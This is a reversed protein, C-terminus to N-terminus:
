RMPKSWTGDALSARGTRAHAPGAGSVGTRLDVGHAISPKTFPPSTPGPWGRWCAPRRRWCPSACAWKSLVAAAELGIYGGGIVAIRKGGDIEGMLRDCDARTRM